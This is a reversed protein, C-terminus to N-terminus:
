GDSASIRKRALDLRKKQSASLLNRIPELEEVVRLYDAQAWAQEALQPGQQLLHSNWYEAHGARVEEEWRVPLPELLRQIVSEPRQDAKTKGIWKQLLDGDSATADIGLWRDRGDWWIRQDPLGHMSVAISWCGFVEPNFDSSTVTFGAAEALERVRRCAEPPRQQTFM